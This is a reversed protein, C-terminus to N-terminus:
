SLLKRKIRRFPDLFSKKEGERTHGRMVWREGEEVQGAQHFTETDFVIMTGAPAQIDIADSEGLPLDRTRSRNEYTLGGKANNRIKKAILHSGPICRFAGNKKDTDRLYFFFKLTRKVDFHLQNALHQTGVVDKVVYIESNLDLPRQLHEKRVKEMFSRSFTKMTEPFLDLLEPNSRKLVAGEGNSYEIRKIGPQDDEKLITEFEMCLRNLEPAQLFSPVVAVGYEKLYSALTLANRHPDLHCEIGSQEISPVTESRLLNEM